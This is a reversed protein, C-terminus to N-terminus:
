VIWDPKVPIIRTEPANLWAQYWNNFEKQREPTNVFINYWATGRNVIEFCETERRFRIDTLLKIDLDNKKYEEDLIFKGNIYKNYFWEKPLDEEKLDIEIIDYEETAVPNGLTIYGVILNDKKRIELYM